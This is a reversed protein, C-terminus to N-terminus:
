SLDELLRKDFRAVQSLFDKKVEWIVSVTQTISIRDLYMKNDRALTIHAIHKSAFNRVKDLAALNKSWKKRWTVYDGSSFYRSAHHDRGNKEESFFDMLARAQIALETLLSNYVTTTGRRGGLVTDMKDAFEASSKGHFRMSSLLDYSGNLQRFCYEMTKIGKRLTELNPNTTKDQM